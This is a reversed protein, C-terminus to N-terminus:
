ALVGGSSTLPQRDAAFYRVDVPADDALEVGTMMRAILTGISPGLKFGHGSFGNAVFYGDPGVADIIPHWDETNVTYLAAYGGVSGRSKMAFRHHLKHMIRERFELSSRTDYNDPDDVAECEDEPATSGVIFKQGRAEPRGYIQDAASVFVPIDGVVEVPRDRTAIQVRTPQLKMPLSVGVMENVHQCWPGSANLLQRCSFVAGNACHVARFGGGAAPDIRVVEHRVFLEVGRALGAQLMDETTGQPDAFGGESEWFVAPPDACDHAIGAMDLAQACLNLSPYRARLQDIPYFGGAAGVQQFHRVSQTDQDGDLIWVVGVPSFGSRNEALELRDCWGQFMQLSAYALQILEINAYRQRVVASSQGTSGAAVHPGKELIAVRRLGRRALQYASSVGIIGGGIVVADFTNHAM